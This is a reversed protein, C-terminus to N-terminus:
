KGRGKRKPTGSTKAKKKPPRAPKDAASREEKPKDFLPPQDPDGKAADGANLFRAYDEIVILVTKGSQDALVHADETKAMKLTAKVGDKFTVSEVQSRFTLRATSAIVDVAEKVAAEVRQKVALLAQEQQYQAMKTWPANMSRMGMSAAKILEGVLFDAAFDKSEGKTPPPQIAPKSENREPPKKEDKKDGAKLDLDAKPILPTIVPAPPQATSTSVNGEVM